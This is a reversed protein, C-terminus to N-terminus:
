RVAAAWNTVAIEHARVRVEKVAPGFYPFAPQNYKRGLSDIGKYGLEVRRGYVTTPGVMTTYGGALKGIPTFRISRRLTGTVINPKEPPGNKVHPRGKKHSGVFNEKARAEVEAAVQIATGKTALDVREDMRALATIAEDIGVWSGYVM